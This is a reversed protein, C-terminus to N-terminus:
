FQRVLIVNRHRDWIFCIKIQGKKMSTIHVCIEEQFFTTKTSTKIGLFSPPKMLFNYDLWEDHDPDHLRTAM